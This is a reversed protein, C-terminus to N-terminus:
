SAMSIHGPHTTGRLPGDAGPGALVGSVASCCVVLSDVLVCGTLSPVFLLLGSKM